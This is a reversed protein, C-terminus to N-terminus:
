IVFGDSVVAYSSPLLMLGDSQAIFAYFMKFKITIFDKDFESSIFLQNTFELQFSIHVESFSDIKYSKLIPMDEPKM